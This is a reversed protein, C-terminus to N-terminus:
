LSGVNSRGGNLPTPNVQAVLFDAMDDVMMKYFARREWLEKKRATFVDAKDVAMRDSATGILGYAANCIPLFGRITQGNLVQYVDPLTSGDADVSAAVNGTMNQISLLFISPAKFEIETLPNQVSSKGGNGPMLAVFKAANLAANQACAAALKLAFSNRDDQDSATASVSVPSSLLDGSFQIVLQDGPNPDIGQIILSAFPSGVVTAEDIPTLSDMRAELAGWEGFFRWGANAGLSGGGAATTALGINGYRLHRRIASKEQQTLAM